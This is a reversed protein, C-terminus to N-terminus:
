YRQVSLRRPASGCLRPVDPSPEGAVVMVWAPEARWWGATPSLGDGWDVRLERWQDAGWRDGPGHAGTATLTVVARSVDLRLGERRVKAGAEKATWILNVLLAREAEGFTSVLRQEEPALWQRVFAGSRPEILELDCGAVWPADAIAAMGRGARHSISISVTAREGDVWAEPAGDPAALVEIRDPSVSLWAGIAVKATWRGLRWDARRREMRLGSLVLREHGGLWDEGAPVDAARLSLWGPASIAV